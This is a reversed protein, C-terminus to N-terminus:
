KIGAKALAANIREVMRQAKDTTTYGSKNHLLPLVAQLAEIMDPVAAIAQADSSSHTDAISLEINIFGNRSQANAKAVDSRKYVRSQIAVWEGKTM